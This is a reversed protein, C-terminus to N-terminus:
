GYANGVKVGDNTIFDRVVEDREVSDRVIQRWVEEDQGNSQAALIALVLPSLLSLRFMDKGKLFNLRFAAHETLVYLGGVVSM